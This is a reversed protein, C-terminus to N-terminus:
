KEELGWISSGPHAESDEEIATLEGVALQILGSIAGIEAQPTCIFRGM